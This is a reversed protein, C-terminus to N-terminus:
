LYRRRLFEKLKALTPSETDWGYQQQLHNIHVNAENMGALTNLAEIAQNYRESDGAFLDNIFLFKDNIGLAKHLDHIRNQQLREAVSLGNPLEMQDNLTKEEKRLKDGLRPSDTEVGTRHENAAPKGIPIDSPRRPISIRPAEDATDHGSSLTAQQAAAAERKSRLEDFLLEAESREPISVQPPDVEIRVSPSPAEESAQISQEVVRVPEPEPVPPPPPAVKVVPVPAPADNEMANDKNLRHYAEYLKRLNEMVLDLEIQPIRGKQRAIIGTQEVIAELLVAIEEMQQKTDM